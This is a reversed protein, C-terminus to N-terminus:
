STDDAFSWVSLRGEPMGLKPCDTRHMSYSCSTQMASPLIKTFSPIEAFPKYASLAHIAKNKNWIIM